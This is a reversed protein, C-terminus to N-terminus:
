PRKVPKVRRFRDKVASGSAISRLRLKLSWRGAGPNMPWIHYLYTDSNSLPNKKKKKKKLFKASRQIGRSEQTVGKKKKEEGRKKRRM